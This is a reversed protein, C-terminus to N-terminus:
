SSLFWSVAAGRDLGFLVGLVVGRSAAATGSVGASAATVEKVTMPYQM